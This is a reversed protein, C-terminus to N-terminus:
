RDAPAGQRGGRKGPPHPPAPLPSELSSAPLWAASPRALQRQWPLGFLWCGRPTLGWCGRARVQALVRALEARVDGLEVTKAALQGEVGALSAKATSLERAAGAARSEVETIRGAEARAQPTAPRSPPISLAQPLVVRARCPVLVRAKSYVLAHLYCAFALRKEACLVCVQAARADAEKAAHQAADREAVVKAWLDKIGVVCTNM